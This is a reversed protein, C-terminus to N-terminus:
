PGLTGSPKKFPGSQYKHEKKQRFNEFKKGTLICQKRFTRWKKYKQKKRRCTTTRGADNVMDHGASIVYFNFM